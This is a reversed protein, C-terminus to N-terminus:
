ACQVQPCFDNQVVVTELEGCHDQAFSSCQWVWPSCAVSWGLLTRWCLLDQSRMWLPWISHAAGTEWLAKCSFDSTSISQRGAWLGVWLHEPNPSSSGETDYSTVVQIWLYSKDSCVDAGVWFQVVSGVSLKIIRFILFFPSSLSFHYM